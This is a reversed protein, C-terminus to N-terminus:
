YQKLSCNILEISRNSLTALVKGNLPKSVCSIFRHTCKKKKLNVRIWVLSRTHLNIIPRINNQFQTNQNKITPLGNSVSCIDVSHSFTDKQSPLITIRARTHTHTHILRHQHQSFLILAIWFELISTQITTFWPSKITVLRNTTQMHLIHGFLTFSPWKLSIPKSEYKRNLHQPQITRM